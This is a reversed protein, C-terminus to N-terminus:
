LAFSDYLPPYKRQKKKTEYGKGFVLNIGFNLNIKKADLLWIDGIINDTIINFQFPGLCAYGGLGFNTYTYNHISYTVAIGYNKGFERNYSITLSPKFTNKIFENRLMLGFIDKSTLNYFGAITLKTNIKSKYSNNSEKIDFENKLSDLFRDMYDKQFKRDKFISDSNFGDFVYTSNPNQSTYNYPNVKWKIYGLLDTISASFSFKDNLKYQGGLDFAWGHNKGYFSSSFNDMDPYSANIKISATGTLAYTTEDTTLNMDCAETSVNALGILYKIRIGATIKDTIKRAFSLGIDHYSTANLFNSGLDATKGIFQGNGNLILKIFDSSYSYSFLSHQTFGLQLWNNKGIHFGFSLLENHTEVNLSNRKALGDIMNASNFYLSDDSHKEIVKHYSFANNEAGVNIMSLEPFGIYFKYNPIYSPNLYSSQPVNRLYYLTYSDQSYSKEIFGALLLVLWAVSVLIKTKM